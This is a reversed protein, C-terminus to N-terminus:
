HLIWQSGLESLGLELHDPVAPPPTPELIALLHERGGRMYNAIRAVRVRQEVTLTIPSVVNFSFRPYADSTGLVTDVGLEDFGILWVGEFAPRSITVEVGVFFRIANIIGPQTGKQRYMPVLVRVLRRKDTLTLEFDFPNGLDRLMADVFAEPATDPDIVTLWADIEDIILNTPEQLCAIFKHLDETVDEEVNMAPLMDILEFSRGAPQPVEYGAFLATHNPPAVANGAIDEVNAATVQYIAGPTIDIDTTIEIANSAYATIEGVLIPVAPLGDDLTTSQLAFSWNLPNLADDISTSDVMRVSENFEIRVTKRAVATAKAVRPAITDVTTFTYVTDLTEGAGALAGVVRVTVVTQPNFATTPDVVIRCLKPSIVTYSSSAGDFGVSFAGTDCALVDNVYVQLSSLGVGTPDGVDLEIMTAVPVDIDDPEPDRNIPLPSHVDLDFLVADVMWGPLPVDVPAGGAVTLSLRFAVDTTTATRVVAGFDVMTRERTITRASYEAGDIFLAVRWTEGAVPTRPIVHSRFRLFTSGAPTDATQSAEVFDGTNLARSSGDLSGLAFVYSGEPAQWGVPLLRGNDTGLKATFSDLHM